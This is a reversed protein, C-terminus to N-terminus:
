RILVKGAAVEVISGDSCKFVLQKFAGGEEGPMRALAGGRVFDAWAASTFSAPADAYLVVNGRVSADLTGNSIAGNIQGENHTIRRIVNVPSETQSFDKLSVPLKENSGHPTFYGEIGQQRKFAEIEGGGLYRAAGEAQVREHANDWHGSLTNSPVHPVAGAVEDAGRIGDVVGDAFNVADPVDDIYKAGKFADGAVPIAGIGSLGANAYDGQITYMIADMADPILGVGPVFGAVGLGTHVEDDVGFHEMVSVSAMGTTLMMGPLSARATPGTVMLASQWWSPKDDDSDSRDDSESRPAFYYGQALMSRVEGQVSYMGGYRAWQQARWGRIGGEFQVIDAVGDRDASEFRDAARKLAAALEEGRGALELGKSRTEAAHKEMIPKQQMDWQVRDLSKHARDVSQRLDDFARRMQQAATRLLDPDVLIRM